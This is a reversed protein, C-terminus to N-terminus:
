AANGTPPHRMGVEHPVSLPTRPQTRRPPDSDSIGQSPQPGTLFPALLLAPSQFSPKRRLVPSQPQFLLHRPGCRSSQFTTSGLQKTQLPSGQMALITSSKTPPRGVALRCLGPSGGLFGTPAYRDCRCIAPHLRVR